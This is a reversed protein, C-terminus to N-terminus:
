DFGDSYVADQNEYAGLDPYTTQIRNAGDLDAVSYSYYNPTALARNLLPSDNRLRYNRAAPDVFRPSETVNGFETPTVNGTRAGIRNYYLYATGLTGATSEFGIDGAQNDDFVSDIVDARTGFPVLVGVGCARGGLNPCRAGVFTSLTIMVGQANGFDSKASVAALHAYATTPATNGDFLCNAVRVLGRETYLDAGGSFFGANDRFIMNDLWIEASAGQNTSSMSIGGGRTEGANGNRITFNEVALRTATASSQNPPQFTLLMVRSTGGGDLVTASADLSRANCPADLYGGKITLAGPNTSVYLLTQTLPYQNARVRIEDDEASASSLNLANQFETPTSVCHVAAAASQCAAMVLACSVLLRWRRTRAGGSGQSM